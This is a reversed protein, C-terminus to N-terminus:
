AAELMEEDFVKPRSPAHGFHIRGISGSYSWRRGRQDPNNGGATAGVSDSETPGIAVSNRQRVLLGTEEMKVSRQRELRASFRRLRHDLQQQLRMPETDLTQM